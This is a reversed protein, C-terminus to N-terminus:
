DLREPPPESFDFNNEQADSDNVTQEAVSEESADEAEKNDAQPTEEKSHYTNYADYPSEATNSEQRDTPDAPGSPQPSSSSAAATGVSAKPTEKMLADIYKEPDYKSLQNFEKKVPKLEKSIENQIDDVYGRLDRVTRLAIKAFDPFKDPGIVVLAIIAILAMEGIGIGLM